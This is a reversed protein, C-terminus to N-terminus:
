VGSIFEMVQGIEINNKELFGASVELVYLAPEIPTFVHPYSEPSVSKEIHIVRKNQDFWVIDISFLMDKMWFGYTSPTEFIFLMGEDALLPSHGSLGQAREQPTLALKVAFIKDAIKIHAISSNKNVGLFEDEFKDVNTTYSFFHLFIFVLAFFIVLIIGLILKIFVNKSENKPQETLNM